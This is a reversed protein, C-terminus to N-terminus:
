SIIRFAIQTVTTIKFECNLINLRYFYCSFKSPFIKLSYIKLNEWCFREYQIILQIYGGGRGGTKTLAPISVFFIYTSLFPRSFDCLGPIQSRSSTAFRPYFFLTYLLIETIALYFYLSM